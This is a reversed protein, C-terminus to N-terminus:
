DAIEATLRVQLSSGSLLNGSRDYLSIIRDDGESLLKRVRKLAADESHYYETRTLSGDEKADSTSALGAEYSIRYMM